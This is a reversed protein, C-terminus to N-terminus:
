GTRIIVMRVCEAAIRRLVHWHSYAIAEMRIQKSAEIGECFGVWIFLSTTAFFLKEELFFCSLNAVIYKYIKSIIKMVSSVM